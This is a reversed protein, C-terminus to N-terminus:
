TAWPADSTVCMGRHSSGRCGFSPRLGGAWETGGDKSGCGITMIFALCIAASSSLRRFSAADCGCGSAFARGVEGPPPADSDVPDAPADAFGGGFDRGAGGGM